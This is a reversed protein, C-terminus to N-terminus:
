TSFTTLSTVMSFHGIISVIEDKIGLALQKTALKAELKALLVLIMNANM